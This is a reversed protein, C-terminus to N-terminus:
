NEPLAKVLKIIEKFSPRQKPDAHWCAVMLAAVDPDTNEPVEPRFTDDSLLRGILAFADLESFPVSLTLMEWIM